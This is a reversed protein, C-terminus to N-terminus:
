KVKQLYRYISAESAKLHKAVESVAGKLLFIGKENLESVIEIKEEQTMREPTIDKRELITKISRLTLEEATPVFHESYTVDPVEMEKLQNVDIITQVAEALKQLVATNFNICLMGIVKDADDRILYTSSRLKQGSISFGSYNAIFRKQQLAGDKLIKLALDTMPGGVQRGSIHNHRIAVISSNPHTTDHLVIEYHPGLVDGLFDVLHIYRYLMPHITETM